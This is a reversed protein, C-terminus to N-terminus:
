GAAERAVSDSLYAALQQRAREVDEPLAHTYRALTIAAAGPQRAPVSHGMLVSAIKPSVGAADLWTAASHRCEQLTIPELKAQEWRRRARQGLGSSSLLRAASYRSPCVLQGGDPRGAEMYARKLLALLQPVAPVVRRSAEYKAAEWEVGWEIAGVTLDIDRWRLMVIQQRRGMGYGALAYPLADTLPLASLLRDFESPSAVREIPTPDMAPLRVRQAPDHGALERDQAWSYLSRIANVISRIRSGSLDPALDDIIAQVDGRRIDTIRRSGLRPEVHVRLCEDIDDVARPKYRRGRKNLARGERAALIFRERANALRLGRGTPLEGRDLMAQLDSRANRAADVGPQRKTRVHRRHVRDYAAGYYSPRCNCKGGAEVRCGQQHRAYVGQYRTKTDKPMAAMM